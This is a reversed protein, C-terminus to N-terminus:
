IEMIYDFRMTAFKKEFLLKRQENNRNKMVYVILGNTDDESEQAYLFLWLTASFELEKSGRTSLVPFAGAKPAKDLNIQAASVTVLGISMSLKHLDKATEALNSWGSSVNRPTGVLNLYDVYAADINYLAKEIKLLNLLELTDLPDSVIRFVNERNKFEAMAEEIRKEEESTLNKTNISNFPIGTIFSKLRNGLVQPSLELSVFLINMGALYQGIASQLLWISKGSGSGGSIITLGAYGTVMEDIGEIGSTIIKSVDPAEMADFFNTPKVSDLNIEEVIQNLVRRVSDVDRHMAYNNLEQVNTDVVTLLRKDKLGNTITDSTVGSLDIDQMAVIIANLQHRLAPPSKANVTAELIKLGPMRQTDSFIKSVLKFLSKYHNNFLDQNLELM